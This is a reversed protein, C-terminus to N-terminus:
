RRGARSEEELRLPIVDIGQTVTQRTEGLGVGRLSVVDGPQLGRPFDGVERTDGHELRGGGPVTGSGDERVSLVACAYCDSVWVRGSGWRAGELFCREDLVVDLQTM